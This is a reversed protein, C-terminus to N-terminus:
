KSKMVCSQYHEQIHNFVSTATLWGKIEEGEQMEILDDVGGYSGYHQTACIRMEQEDFNPYAIQYGDYLHNIEYPIGVYKLKQELELIEKYEKTTSSVRSFAEAEIANIVDGISM